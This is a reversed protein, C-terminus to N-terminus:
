AARTTIAADTTAIHRDITKYIERAVYLKLCRIIEKKTKGEKTRREVYIKTRQDHRMRVIVIRWLAANAQRDGGKNLRHRIHKGSSCDVPSVGCLAAFSRESRLRQPNDGAAGLLVAAVQPGVGTKALLDPPAAEAVLETLAADLHEIETALTQIRQALSRMSMKTAEVPDTIDRPRFRAAVEVRRAPSLPQLSARLGDPASVMLARLENGAQVSAKVAGRRAVRLARISEVVGNRAKPTGSDEGSLAARAAAEADTPDSKGRRRRTQRNPRIVEVVAVGQDALYRALGAGFSGTGEVGVKALEGFSGMWACLARYGKANVPFPRTGLVRGVEDIVVAMHSDAHTDVGGTVLRPRDAM